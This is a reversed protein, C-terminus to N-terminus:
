ARQRDQDNPVCSALRRNVFTWPLQLFATLYTSVSRFGARGSSGRLAIVSSRLVRNGQFARGTELETFDPLVVPLRVAQLVTALVKAPEAVFDEYRVFVRRQPSERLYVWTALLSTLWLYANTAWFGKSTQAVDRRRFSEVVDRPDRVFYVLYLDIGDMKQLQRARLPYHSADIIHTAGTRGEVAQYLRETAARYALLLQRKRRQIGLRFIASSHEFSRWAEDGFPVVGDEVDKRINAWLIERGEGGFNPVGDRRLWAELEGADFVQACNGVTIGFITSGSRGAGLIYVVSPRVDGREVGPLNEPERM